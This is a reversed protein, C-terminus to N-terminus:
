GTLLLSSFAAAAVGGMGAPLVPEDDHMLHGFRPVDNVVGDMSRLMQLM